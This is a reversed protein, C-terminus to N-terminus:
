WKSIPIGSSLFTLHPLGEQKFDEFLKQVKTLHQCLHQLIEGLKEECNANDRCEHIVKSIEEIEIESPVDDREGSENLWDNFAKWQLRLM